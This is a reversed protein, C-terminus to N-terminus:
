PSVLSWDRLSLLALILPLFGTVIVAGVSRWSGFTLANVGGLSTTLVSRTVVPPLGSSM